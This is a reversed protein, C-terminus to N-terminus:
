PSRVYAPAQRHNEFGGYRVTSPFYEASFQVKGAADEGAESKIFALMMDIGASVGASSWIRGDQVFRQEVVELDGLGRLRDLSAWHTTVKRGHLLGAAYLIFAGTCVSLISACHAAQRGVFEVLVQNEVERRTGQGGPVLLCDLRPCDDFSAHPNISLGNACSIPRRSEAVVFCDQPGDAVKSWMTLAEWPGVLDLEEVGDFALIGFTRINM